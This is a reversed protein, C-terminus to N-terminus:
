FRGRNYGRETLYIDVIKEVVKPPTINLKKSLDLLIRRTRADPRISLVEWKAKEKKIRGRKKEAL